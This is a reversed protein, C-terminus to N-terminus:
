ENRIVQVNDYFVEPGKSKATTGPSFAYLGPSGERNPYADVVDITWADPEKEDRPWVKGRIRAEKDTVDVRCKMRYWVDTKWAFPVDTRIRPMPSWSEVRLAQEGGMLMLFYRSNILGMEPKFREGKPTGLMDAVVTYGGEIPPSLYTRIRMFPASPNEALKQLVKGGDREVIKTKAAAGVWGPPAGDVKMDEFNVALPLTPSSRVRATGTFEGIKATVMGASFVNDKGATFKGSEDITGKVGAVSWIPREGSGDGVQGASDFTLTRFQMTQGPSLTIEGPIAHVM